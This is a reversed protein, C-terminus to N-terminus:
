KSTFKYSTTHNFNKTKRKPLAQDDNVQIGRPKGRPNKNKDKQFSQSEQYDTKASINIEISSAPAESFKELDHYFNIHFFNASQISFTNSILKSCFGLTALLSIAVIASPLTIVGLTLGLGTGIASLLFFHGLTNFLTNSINCNSVKMMNKIFNTNVNQALSKFNHIFRRQFALNGVFQFIFLLTLGTFFTLTAIINLSIINFISLAALTASGLILLTIFGGIAYSVKSQNYYSGLFSLKLQSANLAIEVISLITLSFLTALLLFPMVTTSATMFIYLLISTTVAMFFKLILFIKFSLPITDEKGFLSKFIGSFYDSKSQKNNPNWEILKLSNSYTNTNADM